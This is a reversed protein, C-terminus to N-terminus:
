VAFVFFAFFAIKKLFFTFKENKKAFVAREYRLSSELIGARQWLGL